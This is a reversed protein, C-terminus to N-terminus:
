WRDDRDDAQPPHVDVQDRVDVMDVCRWERGKLYQWKRSVGVGVLRMPYEDKGGWGWWHSEVLYIGM